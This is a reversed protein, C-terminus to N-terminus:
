TFLTSDHSSVEGQLKWRLSQSKVLLEAIMKRLLDNEQELQHKASNGSASLSDTSRDSAIAIGHLNATM